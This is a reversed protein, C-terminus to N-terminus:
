KVFVLSLVGLMMVSSLFRGLGLNGSSLVLYLAIALLAELVLVFVQFRFLQSPKMEGKM